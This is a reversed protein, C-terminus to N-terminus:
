PLLVNTQDPSFDLQLIHQVSAQFTAVFYGVESYRCQTDCIYDLEHALSQMNSSPINSMVICYIFIPLMDDASLSTSSINNETADIQHEKEFLEHIMKAAEVLADLKDVPLSFVSAVRSFASVASEWSSPSMHGVSIGFFSQPKDRLSLCKRELLRNQKGFTRSMMTM